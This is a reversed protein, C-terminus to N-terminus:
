SEPTRWPLEFGRRIAQISDDDLTRDVADVIERLNAVRTTGFVCSAIGPNGLVYAIAAQAPSMESIAALTERM